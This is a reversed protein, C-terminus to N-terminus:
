RGLGKAQSFTFNGFGLTVSLYLSPLWAPKSTTQEGWPYRYQASGDPYCTMAGTLTPRTGTLKTGLTLVM